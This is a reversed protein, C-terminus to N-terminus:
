GKDWPGAFPTGSLAWGDKMNRKFRQFQEGKVPGRAPPGASFMEKVRNGSKLVMLANKGRPYTNESRLSSTLLAFPPTSRM